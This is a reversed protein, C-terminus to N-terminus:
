SHCTYKVSVPKTLWLRRLAAIDEVFLERSQWGQLKGVRMLDEVRARVERLEEQSTTSQYASRMEEFLTREPSDFPDREEDTSAKQNLRERQVKGAESLRKKEDANFRHWERRLPGQLADLVTHSRASQLTKLYHAFLTM